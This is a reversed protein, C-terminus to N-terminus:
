TKASLKEFTLKGIDHWSFSKIKKLSNNKLANLDSVSLTIIEDRIFVALDTIPIELLWGNEKDVLLSNAGVNTTFVALGNAMAEMIVNPMGESFSPALLIDCSQYIKSIQEYDSMSGHYVIHNGNVQKDAPIPGVFHFELGVVNPGIKYLAENIEEIGKRRENRGVFLIKIVDDNRLKVESVVNDSEFGAPIQIVKNSTIKLTNTLLEDIKGGYSFVFDAKNCNYLVPKRLMLHQLKTKWGDSYQFMEYGHFNVGIKASITRKQSLTYWGSFGKCYIFDFNNIESKLLTYIAKSYEFSEMLYHGPYGMHKPFELCYSKVSVDSNEGFLQKNLEAETILQQGKAVCHVLTVEVGHMPLVKALYYSHKQMGGMVYPYIGDTLLLLKM